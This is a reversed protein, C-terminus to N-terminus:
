LPENQRQYANRWQQVKSLGLEQVQLRLGESFLEADGLGELFSRVAAFLEAEEAYTYAFDYPLLSTRVFSEMQDYREQRSSSRKEEPKVLNRFFQRRSLSM